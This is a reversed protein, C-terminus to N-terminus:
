PALCQGPLGAGGRYGCWAFSGGFNGNFQEGNSLMFFKLAGSSNNRSWTGTLENGAISGTITGDGGAYTGEISTGDQSLTM